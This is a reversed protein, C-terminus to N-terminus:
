KLASIEITKEAEFYQGAALGRVLIKIKGIDDTAFFSIRAKGSKDTRVEPNWYLTSRFDPKRRTGAQREAPVRFKIVDNTGDVLTTSREANKAGNGKMTKVIVIGNKAVPQFRALEEIAHIVKVTIIEAPNLALFVATSRTLVGDIIYLPSSKPQIYADSFSVRLLERRGTKRYYLRPIIELILEPMNPFVRYEQVNVTTGTNRLNSELSSDFTSATAVSKTSGFFNFSNDIANKNNMFSAYKDPATITKSPSARLSLSDHVWRVKVRELDKGESEVFYFMEDKGDLTIFGLDLRGNKRSNIEFAFGNKSMYGSFLSSDPIPQKTDAFYAYGSLNVFQPPAKLIPESEKMITSWSINGPQTALYNDVAAKWEPSSAPQLTAMETPLNLDGPFVARPHDFLDQNLATVTFVGEIPNGGSDTISIESTINENAVFNTKALEINYKLPPPSALYFHRSALMSGDPAIVSLLALGGPLEKTSFKVDVNERRQPKLAATFYLTGNVTLAAVLEGERWPSRIPLSFSAYLTTNDPLTTLQVTCGDDEVAPLPSQKGNAIAFYSDGKQPTIVVSGTGFKDLTAVAIDRGEANITYERTVSDRAIIVVRNKVGAV